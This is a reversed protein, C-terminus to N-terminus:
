PARDRLFGKKRRGSSEDAEDKGEGAETLARIPLQLPEDDLSNRLAYYLSGSSHYQPSPPPPPAINKSHLSFIEKKPCIVCQLVKKLHM